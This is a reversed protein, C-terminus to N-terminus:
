LEPTSPGLACLVASHELKRGCRPKTQVPSSILINRKTGSVSRKVAGPSGETALTRPTHFRSDSYLVRCKSWFDPRPTAGSSAALFFIIPSLGGM